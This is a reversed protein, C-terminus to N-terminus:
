EDILLAAVCEIEFEGKQAKIKQGQWSMETDKIGLTYFDVDMTYTFLKGLSPADKKWRWRIRLEKGFNPNDRQLYYVEHFKSDDAPAWGEAVGWDHLIKYIYALNFTEKVNVKWSKIELRKEKPLDSFRHKVPNDSPHQLAM